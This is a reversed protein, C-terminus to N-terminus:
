AIDNHGACVLFSAIGEWSFTICMICDANRLYKGAEQGLVINSTDGMIVEFGEYRRELIYWFENIPVPKVKLHWSEQEWLQPPLSCNTM